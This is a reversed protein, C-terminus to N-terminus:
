TRSWEEEITKWQSVHFFDKVTSSYNLLIRNWNLVILETWMQRSLLVFFVIEHRNVDVWFVEVAM